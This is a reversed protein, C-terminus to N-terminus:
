GVGVIFAHAEPQVYQMVAGHIESSRIIRALAVSSDAHAVVRGEKVAVWEGVYDDLADLHPVARVERDPRHGVGMLGAYRRVNWRV